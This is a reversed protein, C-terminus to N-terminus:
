KLLKEFTSYAEDMTIPLRELNVGRKTLFHAVKTVQPLCVGFKVTDDVFDVLNDPHIDIVISGENMVIFRDLLLLLHGLMKHEVIIITLRLKKALEQLLSYLNVTTMPSLNAAPEDLVLVEPQMAVIAAIAVMQKQGGSLKYPPKRRIPNLNFFGIMEEARDSVEDEPLGLNTPGLKIEREVTSTIMQTDPNQFVLGIKQTLRSVPHKRTDLGCVKVTGEMKGMYFNPILGVLSRCLTTKGAGSPGTIAIFSGAEIQLNINRITPQTFGEYTFSLDDVSVLTEEPM